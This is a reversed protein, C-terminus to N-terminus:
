QVYQRMEEEMSLHEKQQKKSHDQQMQDMRKHFDMLQEYETMDM